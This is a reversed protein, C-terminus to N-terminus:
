KRKDTKQTKKTETPEVYVDEFGDPDLNKIEDENKDWKNKERKQKPKKATPQNEPRPETSLLARLLNNAAAVFERVLEAKCLKNEGILKAMYRTKYIEDAARVIREGDDGNILIGEIYGGVLTSSHLLKDAMSLASRRNKCGDYVAVASKGFNLSAEELKKANVM